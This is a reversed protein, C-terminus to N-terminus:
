QRALGPVVSSRGREPVIGLAALEAYTLVPRVHLPIEARADLAKQEINPTTRSARKRRPKRVATHSHTDAPVQPEAAPARPDRM